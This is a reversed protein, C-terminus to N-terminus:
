EKVWKVFRNNEIYATYWPVVNGCPLAEFSHSIATYNINNNEFMFEARVPIVTSLIEQVVGPYDELMASPISFKGLKHKFLGRNKM